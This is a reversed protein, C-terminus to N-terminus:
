MPKLIYMNETYYSYKSIFYAVKCLIKTYLFEWSQKVLSRWKRYNINRLRIRVNLGYLIVSLQVDTYYYQMTEQISM